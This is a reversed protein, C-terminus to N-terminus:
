HCLFVDNNPIGAANFGKVCATTSAGQYVNVFGEVGHM